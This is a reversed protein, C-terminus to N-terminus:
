YMFAVLLLLFSPTLDVKIILHQKCCRQCSKRPVAHPQYFIQTFCLIFQVNSLLLDHEDLAIM